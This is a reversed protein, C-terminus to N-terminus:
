DAVLSGMFEMQEYQRDLESRYDTDVPPQQGFLARYEAIRASLIVEFKAIDADLAAIRRDYIQTYNVIRQREADFRDIAAQLAAIRGELEKMGKDFEQVAAADGAAAIAERRPAMVAKVETFTAQLDKLAKLYAEANLRRLHLFLDDLTDAYRLIRTFSGTPGKAETSILGMLTNFQTQTAAVNFEVLRKKGMYDLREEYLNRLVAVAEAIRQRRPLEDLAALASRGMAVLLIGAVALLAVRHAPSRSM